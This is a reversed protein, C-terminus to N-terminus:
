KATKAEAEEATSNAPGHKKRKRQFARQLHNATTRLSSIEPSWWHVSKREKKGSQIATHCERICETLLVASQNADSCSSLNSVLHDLKLLMELKRVDVKHGRRPENIAPGPNTKFVIYIHDNLSERDLVEWKTMNQATRTTEFTLDIITGRNFTCATGKNCFVLGNSNIMDMMIDGRADNKPYGWDVHKANFDGTLIIETAESRISKELRSIFDRYDQITSNPSCYCSYLKLGHVAAWRFGAEGLGEKDLRTRSTNVIAAKGLTDGHWNPGEERHYESKLVLEISEEAAVLLLLAQAAKCCNLNIQLYKVM